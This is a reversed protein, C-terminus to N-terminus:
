LLELLKTPHEILNKAGNQTLEEATRFGWLAGVAYMGAASATKMDTNTDGLYLVQRAEIALREIIKIAGTPDPKKPLDPRAGWVLEFHWHPLLEAVMLRTLDDPKNSLVAIKMGRETLADLLEPIGDYPHTKEAWRGAYETRVAAALKAITETDRHSEPLARRAFVDVGDGVFLKCEEVSRRPFGFRGLARNMSDTLDQITDLLTGDLDFLVAKYEM